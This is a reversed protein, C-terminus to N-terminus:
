AGLHQGIMAFWAKVQDLEKDLWNTPRLAEIQTDISAVEDKLAQQKALLTDLLTAM